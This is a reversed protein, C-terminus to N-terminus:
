PRLLKSRKYQKVLSCKQRINLTYPLADLFFEYAYLHLNFLKKTIRIIEHLIMQVFLIKDLFLQLFSMFQFVQLFANNSLLAM